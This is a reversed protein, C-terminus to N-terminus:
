KKWLPWVADMEKTDPRRKELKPLAVYRLLNDMAEPTLGYQLGLAHQHEVTDLMGSSNFLEKMENVTLRGPVHKIEAPTNTRDTPLAGESHFPLEEKHITEGGIPEMEQPQAEQNMSQQLHALFETDKAQVYNVVSDTSLGGNKAAEEAKLKAQRLLADTKPRFNGEALVRDLEEQTIGDVPLNDVKTKLSQATRQGVRALKSGSAGM